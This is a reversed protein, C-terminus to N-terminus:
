SWVAVVFRAGVGVAFAAGVLGVDVFGVLWKFLVYRYSILVRLRAIDRRFRSSGSDCCTVIGRVGHGGYGERSSDNKHASVLNYVELIPLLVTSRALRLSVKLVWAKIAGLPVWLM